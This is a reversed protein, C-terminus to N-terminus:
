HVSRWAACMDRLKEWRGSDWTRVRAHWEEPTVLFLSELFAAVVLDAFTLRKGMVLTNADSGNKDLLASISLFGPFFCQELDICWRTVM